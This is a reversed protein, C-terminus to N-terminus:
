YQFEGGSLEMRQSVEEAPQAIMLSEFDFQCEPRFPDDFGSPGWDYDQWPLTVFNQLNPQTGLEGHESPPQSDSPDSTDSFPPLSLMNRYTSQDARGVGVLIEDVKSFIRFVKKCSEYHPDTAPISHLAKLYLHLEQLHHSRSVLPSPLTDTPSSEENLHKHEHLVSSYIVGASAFAFTTL